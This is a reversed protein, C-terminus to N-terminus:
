ERQCSSGDELLTHWENSNVSSRPSDDSGLDPGVMDEGAMKQALYNPTRRPSAATATTPSAYRQQDFLRRATLGGLRASTEMASVSRNNGALLVRRNISSQNLPSADSGNSDSEESTQPRATRNRPHYREVKKQVAGRRRMKEGCASGPDEYLSTQTLDPNSAKKLMNITNQLRSAPTTDAAEAGSASVNGVSRALLRSQILSSAGIEEQEEIELKFKDHQDADFTGYAELANGGRLNSISRTRTPANEDQVEYRLNDSSKRLNESSQHLKSRLAAIRNLAETSKRTEADRLNTRSTAPTLRSSVATYSMDSDRRRQLEKTLERSATNLPTRANQQQNVLARNPSQSRSRLHLNSEIYDDEKNTSGRRPLSFFQRRGKVTAEGEDRRTTFRVHFKESQRRTIASAAAGSPTISQMNSTTRKPTMTQPSWVTRPQADHDMHKKSLSVRDPSDRRFAQQVRAIQSLGSQSPTMAPTAPSSRQTMAAQPSRPLSAAPSQQTRNVSRPTGVFGAQSIQPGPEFRQNAPSMTAASPQFIISPGWKKKRYLTM